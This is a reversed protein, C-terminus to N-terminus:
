VHLVYDSLIRVRPRYESLTELIHCTLGPCERCDLERLAHAHTILATIVTYTLDPCHFIVLRRLHPCGQVAATIVANTVHQLHSFELERLGSFRGDKFVAILGTEFANGMSARSMRFTTLNPCHTVIDNALNTEHGLCSGIDLTHLNGLFPAMVTFISTKVGSPHYIVPILSRLTLSQLLTCENAITCVKRYRLFPWCDYIGLDRLLPLARVTNALCRAACTFGPLVHLRWLQTLQRISILLDNEAMLFRLDLEQLHTLAGLASQVSSMSYQGTSLAFCKTGGAITTVASMHWSYTSEVAYTIKAPSIGRTRFWKLAARVNKQTLVVSINRLRKTVVSIHLVRELM